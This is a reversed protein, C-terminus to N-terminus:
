IKWTEYEPEKTKNNKHMRYRYFPIRLHHIKYYEGLRKRLEEEERHRMKPNYGGMELLLDRRYMIGCSINDKEAYKREFANEYQDVLIYDCSVCFADHNTELYKQMFYCTDPSIFDDADVRVVFQGKAVKIGKNSSQAVGLNEKNAILHIDEKFTELVNLSNDESNDDVVIVEFNVNKQSLCSRMCRSLYKSYNYNTIIISVDPYKKM